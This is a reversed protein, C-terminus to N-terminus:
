LEENYNSISRFNPRCNVPAQYAVPGAGTLPHNALVERGSPPPDRVNPICETYTRGYEAGRARNRSRAGGATKGVM